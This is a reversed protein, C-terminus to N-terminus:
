SKGAAEISEVRITNTDVDLKGVVKVRKGIYSKATARDDLKYSVKSVSDKLVLEGNENIISGIYSKSEQTTAEGSAPVHPENAHPAPAAPSDVQQAHGRSSLAVALFAIGAAFWLRQVMTKM